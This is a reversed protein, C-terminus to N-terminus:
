KTIYKGLDESSLIKTFLASDYFDGTSYKVQVEHPYIINDYIDDNMKGAAVTFTINYHTTKKKGMAPIGLFRRVVEVERTDIKYDTDCNSLVSTINEIIEDRKDEKTGDIESNYIVELDYEKNLGQYLEKKLSKEEKNKFEIHYKNLKKDYRIKM